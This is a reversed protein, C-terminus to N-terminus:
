VLPSRPRCQLQLAAPKTPQSLGVKAQMSQAAVLPRRVGSAFYFHRSGMLWRGGKRERAWIVVCGWFLVWVVSESCIYWWEVKMDDLIRWARWREPSLERTLTPDRVRALGSGADKLDVRRYGGREVARFCWLKARVANPIAGCFLSLLVSLDEAVRHKRGRNGAPRSDARGTELVSRWCMSGNWGMGIIEQM